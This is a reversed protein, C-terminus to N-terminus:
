DLLVRRTMASMVEGPKGTLSPPSWETVEAFGLRYQTHIIKVVGKRSGVVILKVSEGGLDPNTSAPVSVSASELQSDDPLFNESM